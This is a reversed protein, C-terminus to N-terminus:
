LAGFDSIGTPLLSRRVITDSDTDLDRNSTMDSALVRVLILVFMDLTRVKDKKIDSDMDSTGLFEKDLGSSPCLSKDTDM